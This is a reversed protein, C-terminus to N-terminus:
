RKLRDIRNLIGETLAKIEGISRLHESHRPEKMKAIIAARMSRIIPEAELQSKHFFAHAGSAICEAEISPDDIASLVVIPVDPFGARFRKVTDVGLSTPLNLDLLAVDARGVDHCEDLSTVHDIECYDGLVAKAKISQTESDEILLVNLRPLNKTM